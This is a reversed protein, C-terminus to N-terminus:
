AKSATKGAGRRRSPAASKTEGGERPANGNLHLAALSKAHPSSLPLELNEGYLTKYWISSLLEALAEDSPTAEEVLAVLTPDPYIVLKRCIEDMMSGLAYVAIRITEASINETTEYRRLISRTVKEYWISNQHHMFGSFEGVEDSLQLMCRHLGANNRISKLWQLNAYYIAEFANTDKAGGTYFQGLVTVFDELVKITIDTRNKFYLYFTSHAVGAGECIDSVRLDHYGRDSLSHAAALMLQDRTQDGKRRKGKQKLKSELHKRYDLHNM